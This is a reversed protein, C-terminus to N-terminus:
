LGMELQARKQHDAEVQEEWYTIRARAIEAYEESIEIGLWRRWGAKIAGIIESGTGAFPVLLVADDLYAEPPRILRALYETLAIPKITPHSNQQKAKISGYKGCVDDPTNNLGGGGKTQQEEFGELGANRERRSAKACYFFRSAGGKDNHGQSTLPTPFNGHYGGQGQSAKREAGQVFGKFGPRDGSMEDLMAVPCGEVCEWAEITELGDPDAYGRPGVTTQLTNGFFADTQQAPNPRYGENKVRKVGVRVCDPHHSLILNAPWRGQPKYMLMGETAPLSVTHKSQERKGGWLANTGVRRDPEDKAYNVRCGDIWLAGAGHETATEAYTGRRPKRALIIPEWAPKLAINWGTWLNRLKGCKVCFAMQPIMTNAKGGYLMSLISLPLCAVWSHIHNKRLVSKDAAMLKSVDLSGVLSNLLRRWDDVHYHEVEYGELWQSVRQLSSPHLYDLMSPLDSRLVQFLSRLSEGGLDDEHVDSHSHKLAYEQSPLLALYAGAFRRLLEGCSHPDRLYDGQSNPAKHNESLDNAPWDDGEVGWAAATCIRDLVSQALYTNGNNHRSAACQCADGEQLHRSAALDLRTGKPFGSGYIWMCTDYITWGADELGCALRHFTRTGGFFLGVAGPVCARLLEAAWETVWAQYEANSKFTDWQSSMFALGYPPDALVATISEDPLDHLHNGCDGVVVSNEAFPGIM